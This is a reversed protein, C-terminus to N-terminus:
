FVLIVPSNKSSVLEQRAVFFCQVPRMHAAPRLKGMGSSSALRLHGLPSHSAIVYFLTLALRILFSSEIRILSSINHRLSSFSLPIFSLALGKANNVATNAIFHEAMTMGYSIIRTGTLCFTSPEFGMIAM